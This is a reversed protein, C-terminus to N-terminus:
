FVLVPPIGFNLTPNLYFMETEIIIMIICINEAAAVIRQMWCEFHSTGHKCFHKAWKRWNEGGRWQMQSCTLTATKLWYLLNIEIEIPLYATKSVSPLNGGNTM